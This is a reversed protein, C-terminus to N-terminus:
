FIEEKMNEEALQRAVVEEVAAAQAEEFIGEEKLFSDDRPLGPM